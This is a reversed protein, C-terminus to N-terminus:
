DEVTAYVTGEMVRIYEIEEAKEFAQTYNGMNNLSNVKSFNVELFRGETKLQVLKSEYDQILYIERTYANLQLICIVLLSFIAAALLVWFFKFSFGLKFTRTIPLTLVYTDNM